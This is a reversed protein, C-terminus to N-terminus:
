FSNNTTKGQSFSTISHAERIKAGKKQVLEVFKSLKQIAHVPSRQVNLQLVSLRDAFTGKKTVTELWDTDGRNQNRHALIIIKVNSSM